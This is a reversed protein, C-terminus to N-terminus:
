PQCIASDFWALGFELKSNAENQTIRPAHDDIAVQGRVDPLRRLAKRDDREGARPLAALGRQAAGEKGLM